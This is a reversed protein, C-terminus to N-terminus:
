EQYLVIHLCAFRRVLNLLITKLLGYLLTKLQLKYYIINTIDKIQIVIYEYALVLVSVTM